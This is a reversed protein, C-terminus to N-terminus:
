KLDIVDLYGKHDIDLYYFIETIKVREATDAKHEALISLISSQM